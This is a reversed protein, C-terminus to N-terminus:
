GIYGEQIDLRELELKILAATLILVADTNERETNWQYFKAHRVIRFAKRNRWYAPRFYYLTKM